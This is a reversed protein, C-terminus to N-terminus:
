GVKQLVPLCMCRFASLGEIDWSSNSVDWLPCEPVGAFGGCGEEDGIEGKNPGEPAEDGALAVGGDLGAVVAACDVTYCAVARDACVGL